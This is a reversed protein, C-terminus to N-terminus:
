NTKVGGGMCCMEIKRVICIDERIYQETNNQVGGWGDPIVIRKTDGRCCIKM